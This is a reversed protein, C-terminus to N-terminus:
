LVCMGSIMSISKCNFLKIAEKSIECVPYGDLRIVSQSTPNDDRSKCIFM